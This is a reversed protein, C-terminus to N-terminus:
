AEKKNAWDIERPDVGLIEAIRLATLIRPESLGKEIKVYGRLSINLLRAMDEQTLGKERRLQEISLGM